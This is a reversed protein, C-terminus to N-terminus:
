QLNMWPVLHECTLWFTCLVIDQPTCSQVLIKTDSSTWGQGLMLWGMFGGRFGGRLVGGPSVHFHGHTPKKGGGLDVFVIKAIKHDVM